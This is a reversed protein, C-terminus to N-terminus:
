GAHPNSERRRCWNRERYDHSLRVRRAAAPRPQRHHDFTAEVTDRHREAQAFQTETAPVNIRRRDQIGAIPHTQHHNEVALFDGYYINLDTVDISKAM